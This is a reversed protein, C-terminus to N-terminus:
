DIPFCSLAYLFDTNTDKVYANSSGSGWNRFYAYNKPSNDLESSSWLYPNTDIYCFEMITESDILTLTSEVASKNSYLDKLEGLTPLYGHVIGENITITQTYCWHAANNNSNEESAQQIIINTNSQGAYDDTGNTIGEVDTGYLADSWPINNKANIGKKVCMRTNDTIVAM